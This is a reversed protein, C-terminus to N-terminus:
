FKNARAGNVITGIVIEEKKKKKTQKIEEEKNVDQRVIRPIVCLFRPTQWRV